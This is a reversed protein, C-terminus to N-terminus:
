INKELFYRNYKRDWDKVQRINKSMQIDVDDTKGILFQDIDVTWIGSVLM